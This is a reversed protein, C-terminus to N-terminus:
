KQDQVSTLVGNKFSYYRDSTGISEIGRYIWQETFDSGTQTTNIETPLGLSMRVQIATMGIRVKHKEILEWIDASWSYTIRPSEKLLQSEFNRFALKIPDVNTGSLAVDVFGEKGEATQMIFRLPADQHTVIDIVKVPSFRKIEFGSEKDMAEDYTNLSSYVYWYTKGIHDKKAADILRISAIGEITKDFFASADYVLKQGTDEMTFEIQLKESLGLNSKIVNIATVKAIRGVYTEYPIKSAIPMGFSARGKKDVKVVAFGRYGFEQSMKRRPMFIFRQNQWKDIPLAYYPDDPVKAEEKKEGISGQRIYPNNQESQMFAASSGFLVVSAIAILVKLQKMAIDGKM